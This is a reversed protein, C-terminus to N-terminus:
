CDERPAGYRAMETYLAGDRSLDSRLLSFGAVEFPPASFLNNRECWAKLNPASVEGRRWRAVTVHPRYRKAPLDIQASRAATEVREHLARLPANPALDVFALRADHGGFHGVGQLAVEFTEIMVTDLASHLDDLRHRDLDGLFSLTIHLNEEPQWNAGRLDCQIDDIADAVAIPIPLAVFSRIM